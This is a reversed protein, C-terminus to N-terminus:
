RGNLTPTPSLPRANTVDVTQGGLTVTTRGNNVPKCEKDTFTGELVPLGYYTLSTLAIGAALGSAIQPAFDALMSLGAYTLATGFLLRPSPLEGRGCYKEPMFSAGTTSGLTVVMSLLVIRQHKNM